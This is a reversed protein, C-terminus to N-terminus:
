YIPHIYNLPSNDGSERYEDLLLLAASTNGCGMDIIILYKCDMFRQILEPTLDDLELLEKLISAIEVNIKRDMNDEM